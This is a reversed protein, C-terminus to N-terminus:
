VYYRAGAAVPIRLLPSWCSNSVRKEIRSIKKEATSHRSNRYNNDCIVIKAKYLVKYLLNM